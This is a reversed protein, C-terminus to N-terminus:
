YKFFIILFCKSALQLFTWFERLLIYNLWCDDLIHTQPLSSLLASNMESIIM